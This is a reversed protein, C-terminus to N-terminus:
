VLTERNEIFQDISSSSNAYLDEEEPYTDQSGQSDQSDDSDIEDEEQPSSEIEQDKM